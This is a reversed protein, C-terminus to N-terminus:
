VTRDWVVTYTVFRYPISRLTGYSKDDDSYVRPNELIGRIGTMEVTVTGNKRALYDHVMHSIIRASLPGIMNPCLYVGHWTYVHVRVTCIGLCADVQVYSVFRIRHHFACCSVVVFLRLYADSILCLYIM